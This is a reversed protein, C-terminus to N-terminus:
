LQLNKGQFSVTQAQGAPVSRSAIFISNLIASASHIVCHFGPHDLCM